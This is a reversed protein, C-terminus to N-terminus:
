PQMDRALYREIETARRRRYPALDAVRTLTLRDLPVDRAAVIVLVGHSRISWAVTAGDSRMLAPIPGDGVLVETATGDLASTALTLPEGDDAGRLQSLVYALSVPEGRDPQTQVVLRRAAGPSHHDLRVCTVAGSEDQGVGALWGADQAGVLAFVPWDPLALGQMHAQIEAVTAARDPTDGM